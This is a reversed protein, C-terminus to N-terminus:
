AGPELGGLRQLEEAIGYLGTAIRPFAEGACDELEETATQLEMGYRLTDEDGAETGALADLRGRIDEIRRIAALATPAQLPTRTQVRERLVKVVEDYQALLGVLKDSM